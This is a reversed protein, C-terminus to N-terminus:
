PVELCAGVTRVFEMVIKPLKIPHTKPCASGQMYSMQTTTDKVTKDGTWCNPFTVESRLFDWCREM